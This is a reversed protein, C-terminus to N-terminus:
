EQDQIDAETIELMEPDRPVTELEASMDRLNKPTFGLSRELQMCTTHVYKKMLGHLYIYAMSTHEMKENIERVPSAEIETYLKRILADKEDCRNLARKTADKQAQYMDEIARLENKASHARSVAAFRDSILLDCGKRVSKTCNTAVSALAAIRDYQSLENGLM